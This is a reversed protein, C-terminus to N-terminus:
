GCVFGSASSSVTQQYGGISVTGSGGSVMGCQFLAYSPSVNESFSVSGYGGYVSYSVVTHPVFPVFFIVVLGLFVLIIIINRRVNSKRPSVVATPARERERALKADYTPSSNGKCVDLLEAVYKRDICEYWSHGPPIEDSRPAFGKLFDIAKEQYDTGKFVPVSLSQDKHRDMEAELEQIERPTAPREASARESVVGITEGALEELRTRGTEDAPPIQEIGIGLLLARQEIASNTENALAVLKSRIHPFLDLNRTAISALSQLGTNLEIVKVRAAELKDPQASKSMKGLEERIRHVYANDLFPILAMQPLGGSQVASIVRQGEALAEKARLARNGEMHM